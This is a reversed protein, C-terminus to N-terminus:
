NVECKIKRYPLKIEKLESPASKKWSLLYEWEGTKINIISIEININNMYQIVNDKDPGKTLNTLFEKVYVRGNNKDLFDISSVAITGNASKEIIIKKSLNLIHSIGTLGKEDKCNTFIYKEKINQPDFEATSFSIFINVWLLSLVLIGLLKKM